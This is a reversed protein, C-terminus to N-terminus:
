ALDAIVYQAAALTGQWRKVNTHAAPRKNRNLSGPYEHEDARGRKNGQSSPIISDCICRGFALM